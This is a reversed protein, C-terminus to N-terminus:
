VCWYCAWWPGFLWDDRMATSGIVSRPLSVESDTASSTAGRADVLACTQSEKMGSVECLVLEALVGTAGLTTSFAIASIRKRLRSEPNTNHRAGAGCLAPFLRHLVIISIVSFTVVFPISAFLLQVTSSAYQQGPRHAVCDDDCRDAPVMM